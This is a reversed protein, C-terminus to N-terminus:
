FRGINYVKLRLFTNELPVALIRESKTPSIPEPNYIENPVM